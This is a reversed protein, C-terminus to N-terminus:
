LIEILVFSTYFSTYPVGYFTLYFRKCRFIPSYAFFNVELMCERTILVILLISISFSFKPYRATKRVDMRYDFLLLKRVSEQFRMYYRITRPDMAFANLQMCKLSIRFTTNASLSFGLIAVSSIEFPKWVTGLPPYIFSNATCRWDAFRAWTPICPIQLIRYMSTSYLSYSFVQTLRLPMSSTSDRNQFFRQWLVQYPFNM